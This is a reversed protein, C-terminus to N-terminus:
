TKKILYHGLDPRLDVVPAYVYNNGSITVEEFATGIGSPAFWVNNLTSFDKVDPFFGPGKIYLPFVVLAKTGNATYSLQNSNKFSASNNVSSAAYAMNWQMDTNVEGVDSGTSTSNELKAVSYYYGEPDAVNGNTSATWLRMTGGENGALHTGFNCLQAFDGPSTNGFWGSNSSSRYMPSAEGANHKSADSAFVFANPCVSQKQDLPGQPGELIMFAGNGSDIYGLIIIRKPDAFVRITRNSTLMSHSGSYSSNNGSYGWSLNETSTNPDFVVGLCFGMTASNYYSSSSHSGSTYLACYKTISNTASTGQLIYQADNSSDINGSQLSNSSHLAWGSNAGATLESDATTIFELNSLSASGSSSEHIIRTIDRVVEGNTTNSPFKLKAYM